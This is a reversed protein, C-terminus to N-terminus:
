EPTGYFLPLGTELQVRDAAEQVAHDLVREAAFINYYWLITGGQRRYRLRVAMRYSQGFRFVPIGIVFLSPVKLPKGDSGVHEEDFQMSVEGSSLVHANKVVANVHIALGRSLEILKAATAFSGNLMQAIELLAAATEDSDEPPPLVDPIRDELFQAFVEQPMMEGDMEAWRKWEDSIPFDYIGRHDGFRPKPNDSEGGAVLIEDTEIDVIDAIRRAEHYDLVAMISPETKDCNVFIVSDKDSFRKTHAILSELRELNAIGARRRPRERFEKLYNEAPTATLGAGHVLVQVDHGDVEAIKMLQPTVYKRALDTAAMFANGDEKNESM